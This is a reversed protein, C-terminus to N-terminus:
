NRSRQAAACAHYNLSLRLALSIKARCSMDCSTSLHGPVSFREFGFFVTLSTRAATHAGLLRLASSYRLM